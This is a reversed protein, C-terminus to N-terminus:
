VVVLVPDVTNSLGDPFSCCIFISIYGGIIGQKQVPPPPAPHNIHLCALTLVIVSCGSVFKPHCSSLLSRLIIHSRGDLICCIFLLTRSSRCPQLHLVPQKVTLHPRLLSYFVHVSPQSHLFQVFQVSDRSEESELVSLGSSSSVVVHLSSISPM